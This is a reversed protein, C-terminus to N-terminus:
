QLRPKPTEILKKLQETKALIDKMNHKKALKVVKELVDLAEAIEGISRLANSYNHYLYTLEKENNLNLLISKAYMFADRTIRIEQTADIGLSLYHGAIRSNASGLISFVRVIATSDNSQLVKEIAEKFLTSHESKIKKLNILYLEKEEPTIIPIGTVNTMEIKGWGELDLLSFKTTLYQAKEALLISEVDLADIHKATDIGLDIFSLHSNITDPSYEYWSCLLLVGQLIATRDISTNIIKKVIRINKENPTQDYLRILQKYDSSEKSKVKNKTKDIPNIDLQLKNLQEADPSINPNIPKSQQESLKKIIEQLTEDIENIHLWGFESLLNKNNHLETALNAPGVFGPNFGFKIAEDEIIKHAEAPLRYSTVFFWNDIKKLKKLKVAKALDGRAKKLIATLNKSKHPSKFCHRAFLTKETRLYGDNGGDSQDDDIQDYDFGWKNSFIVNVLHTFEQPNTLNAIQDEINM